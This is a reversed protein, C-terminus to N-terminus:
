LGLMSSLKAMYLSNPNSVYGDETKTIMKLTRLAAISNNGMASASNKAYKKTLEKMFNGSEGTTIKGDRKLVTLATHIVSNLKSSKGAAFEIIFTLRNQVKVGADKLATMTESQKAKLDDGTLAADTLELVLYDSLSTGLKDTIREAKSAYHKRVPAKKEKPAKPEKAKKEVKPKEAKAKKEPKAKAKKEPKAAVPEDSLLAEPNELPNVEPEKQAVKTEVESYAANIVEQSEASAVAAELLAEGPGEDSPHEIIEDDAVGLDALLTDLDENANVTNLNM